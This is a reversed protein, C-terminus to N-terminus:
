TTTVGQLAGRVVGRKRAVAATSCRRSSDSCMLATCWSDKVPRLGLLCTHYLKGDSRVLVAKCFPLLWVLSTCKHWLFLSGDLRLMPCQIWTWFDSDRCAVDLSRSSPM